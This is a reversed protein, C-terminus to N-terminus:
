NKRRRYVIVSITLSTAVVFVVLGLVIGATVTITQNQTITEPPPSVIPVSIPDNPDSNMIIELTDSFTDSDSDINTANTHVYGTANAGPNFPSFIGKIEEGDELFDNDTDNNLSNTDYFLETQDDIVDGDSDMQGTNFMSGRFMTWEQLGSSSIGTLNLCRCYYLDSFVIEKIGNNEFDIIVPSSWVIYPATFLWEVAGIHSFCYLNSDYSGVIVELTGDNDLDALAPSSTIGNGTTYNWEESGLHNVCFVKRVKKM